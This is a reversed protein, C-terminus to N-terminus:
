ELATMSIASRTRNMKGGTVGIGFKLLCARSYTKTQPFYPGQIGAAQMAQACLTDGTQCVSNPTISVPDPCDDDSRCAQAPPSQNLMSNMMPLMSLTDLGFPDTFSLPNNKTLVYLSLDGGYLGLPDAQIFRGANLDRYRNVNYLLNTERDAYTGEFRVPQEFV